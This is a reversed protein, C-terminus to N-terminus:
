WLSQLLVIFLAELYWTAFLIKTEQKRGSAGLAADFVRIPAKDQM